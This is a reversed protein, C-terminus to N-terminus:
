GSYDEDEIAERFPRLLSPRTQPRVITLKMYFLIGDILNIKANRRRVGLNREINRGEIFYRLCKFDFYLDWWEDVSADKNELSCLDCYSKFVEDCIELEADAGHLKQKIIEYINTILEDSESTSDIKEILTPLDYEM